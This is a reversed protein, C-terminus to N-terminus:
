FTVRWVFTLTMTGPKNIVNFNRVNLFTDYLTRDIAPDNWDGQPIATATLPVSTDIPACVIGMEVLAGVAEAAAFTCTFDLVNTPIASTLGGSDIFEITSFQKRFLETYLSGQTAAAAPVNQTDWGVDGTGVALAFGGATPEAPDKLLRAVLISADNLIINKLRRSEVLRGTQSDRLEVFIEGRAIPRRMRDIMRPKVVGRTTTIM